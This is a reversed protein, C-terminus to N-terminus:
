MFVQSAKANEVAETNKDILQVMWNELMESTAGSIQNNFLPEPPIGFLTTARIRAKKEM